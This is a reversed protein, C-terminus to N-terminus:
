GQKTHRCALPTFGSKIALVIYCEGIAHKEIDEFDDVHMVENCKKLMCIANLRMVNKHCEKAGDLAIALSILQITSMHCTV